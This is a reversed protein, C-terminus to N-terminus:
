CHYRSGHCMSYQVVGTQFCQHSSSPSNNQESIACVSCYKNRVRIRIRVTGEQMPLLELYIELVLSSMTPTNTLDKVGVVM